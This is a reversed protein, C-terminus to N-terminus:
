HREHFLDGDILLAHDYPRLLEAIVIYVVWLFVSKSGLSVAARGSSQAWSGAGMHHSECGDIISGSGPSSNDEESRQPCKAYMNHMSMCAPLVYVHFFSTIRFICLCFLMPSSHCNKLFSSYIIFFICMSSSAFCFGLSPTGQVWQSLVTQIVPLLLPQHSPTSLANQTCINPSYFSM